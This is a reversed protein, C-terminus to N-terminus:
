KLMLGQCDVYLNYLRDCFPFYDSSWKKSFKFIITGPVAAIQRGHDGSGRHKHRHLQSRNRRENRCEKVNSMQDLRIKKEICQNRTADFM